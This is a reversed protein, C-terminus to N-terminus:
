PPGATTALVYRSPVYLSTYEFTPCSSAPKFRNNVWNENGPPM